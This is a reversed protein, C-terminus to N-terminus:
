SKACHVAVSKVMGFGSTGNKNGLANAFAQNLKQSDEDEEAPDHITAVCGAPAGRGLAEDAQPPHESTGVLRNTALRAASQPDHTPLYVTRRSQALQKITKLTAGSVGEDASM